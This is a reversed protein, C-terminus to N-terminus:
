HTSEFDQLIDPLPVSSKPGTPPPNDELLGKPSISPFKTVSSSNKESVEPKNFFISTGYVLNKKETYGYKLPDVSIMSKILFYM